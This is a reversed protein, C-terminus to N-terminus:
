LQFGYLIIPLICSRYLLCKQTPIHGRSSNRLLKMCKVTLLAKNAYFTIHQWFTLKRIFIFELYQWTGKLHLISSGLPTIDLLPPNFSGHSRSFHFVETKGHEIVLGFQKLLSSMIHYSCFLHSNSVILSKNQAIFLSDDVFSLISILNKLNKVWKLSRFSWWQIKSLM